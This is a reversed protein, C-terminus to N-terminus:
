RMYGKDWHCLAEMGGLGLGSVEGQFRRPVRRKEGLRRWPVKELDAGSSGPGQRLHASDTAM